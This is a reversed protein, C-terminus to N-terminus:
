SGQGITYARTFGGPEAHIKVRVIGGADCTYEERITLGNPNPMLAVPVTALDAHKQLAVDFPFLIQDWNAIEGKPQM